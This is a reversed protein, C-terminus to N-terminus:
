NIGENFGKITKDLIKVRGNLNHYEEWLKDTRRDISANLEGFSQNTHQELSERDRIQNELEKEFRGELDVIEMRVLELDSIRRSLRIV